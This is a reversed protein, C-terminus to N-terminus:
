AEIVLVRLGISGLFDARAARYASLLRGDSPLSPIDPSWGAMFRGSDFEFEVSFGDPLHYARRYALSPMPATM